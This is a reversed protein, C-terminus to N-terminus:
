HISGIILQSISEFLPSFIDAYLPFSFYINNWHPHQNEKQNLIYSIYILIYLGEQTVHNEKTFLHVLEINWERESLFGSEWIFSTHNKIPNKYYFVYCKNKKDSYLMKTNLQINYIFYKADEFHM